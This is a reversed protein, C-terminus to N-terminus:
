VEQSIGEKREKATKTLLVSTHDFMSVLNTNCGMSHCKVLDLGTELRYHHSSLLRGWLALQACADRVGM